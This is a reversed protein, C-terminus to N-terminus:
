NLSMSIDLGSSTNTSSNTERALFNTAQDIVSQVFSEDISTNSPVYFLNEDHINKSINDQVTKNNNLCALFLFFYVIM